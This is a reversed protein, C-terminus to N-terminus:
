IHILSLSSGEVEVTYIEEGDDSIVTSGENGTPVPEFADPNDRNELFKLGVQQFLAYTLVDDIYGDGSTLEINKEAAIEQLEATLQDVEADILDAPRCTILEDGDLARKQLDADVAAPTAGYEGRLIGTTEKSMSKYREGTLM